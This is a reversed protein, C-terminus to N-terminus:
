ISRNLSISTRNLDRTAILIRLLYKIRESFTTIKPRKLKKKQPKQPTLIAIQPNAQSKRKLLFNQLYPSERKSKKLHSTTLHAETASFNQNSSPRNPPKLTEQLRYVTNNSPTPPISTQLRV